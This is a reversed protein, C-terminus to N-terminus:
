RLVHAHLGLSEVREQLHRIESETIGPRTIILMTGRPPLHFRGGSSGPATRRPEARTLPARRGSKSGRVPLWLLLRVCLLQQSQRDHDWDASPARGACAGAKAVVRPATVKVPM